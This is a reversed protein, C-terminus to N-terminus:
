KVQALQQPTANGQKFADALVPHKHYGTLYWKRLNPSFIYIILLSGSFLIHSQLHGFLQEKYFAYTWLILLIPAVFIKDYRAIFWVRNKIRGWISIPSGKLYLIFYYALLVLSFGISLEKTFVRQPIEAGLSSEIAWLGIAWYYNIFFLSTLFNKLPWQRIEVKPSLPGLSVAATHIRQNPSLFQTNVNKFQLKKGLDILSQNLSLSNLYSLSGLMLFALEVNRHPFVTFPLLVANLLLRKEYKKYPQCTMLILANWLLLFVILPSLLNATESVFFYLSYPLLYFLHILSLRPSGFPLKKEASWPSQQLYEYYKPNVKPHKFFIVLAMLAPIAFLSINKAGEQSDGIPYVSTFIYASLALLSHLSLLQIQKKTTHKM